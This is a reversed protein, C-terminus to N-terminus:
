RRKRLDAYRKAMAPQCGSPWRNVSFRLNLHSM